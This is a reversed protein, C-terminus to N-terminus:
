LEEKRFEETNDVDSLEMQEKLAQEKLWTKYLSERNGWKIFAELREIEKDKLSASAQLKTYEGHWYDGCEKETMM